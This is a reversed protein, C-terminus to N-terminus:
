MMRYNLSTMIWISGGIFLILILLTLLFAMVNWRMESSTDLHLFYHLHLLFQLAAAVVIGTLAAPRSVMGSMVLAFSVATLVISLLFGITYSGYTGRAAGAADTQAQNM